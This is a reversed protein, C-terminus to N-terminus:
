AGDRIGRAAIERRCESGDAHSDLSTISESERQGIVRREEWRNVDADNSRALAAAIKGTSKRTEGSLQFAFLLKAVLKEGGRDIWNEKTNRSSDSDGNKQEENQWAECLEKL